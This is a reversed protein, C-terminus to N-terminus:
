LQKRFSDLAIRLLDLASSWFRKRHVWNSQSLRLRLSLFTNPILTSSLKRFFLKFELKSAKGFKKLPGRDEIKLAKPKRLLSNAFVASTMIKHWKQVEYQSILNIRINTMTWLLKMNFHFRSENMAVYSCSKNWKRRKVVNSFQARAFREKQYCRLTDTDIQSHNKLRADYTFRDFCRFWVSSTLFEEWDFYM